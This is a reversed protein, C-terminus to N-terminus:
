ELLLRKKELIISNYHCTKHWYFPLLLWIETIIAVTITGLLSGSIKLFVKHLNVMYFHM